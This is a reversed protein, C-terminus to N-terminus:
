RGGIAIPAGAPSGDIRSRGAGLLHAGHRSAPALWGHDALITVARHASRADRISNPGRQYIDPVSVLNTPGGPPDTTRKCWITRLWILLIQAERLEASVRSAGILRMGEAAYHQAIVIGANTAAATVEGADIDCVLTLVAAIRAAHEPLKNALGCIPELEGGQGLRAEIYDAFAIWVRRANGSLPLARLALENRTGSALPLPRELTDLLRAGYRRLAIDSEPSPERWLRTGSAPDPATMLVRSMLGQDILQQDSMWISAVDPQAMLHMAVRRGPLVTIEDARIRDFPKGDWAKSLGAATRLKAEDSMGHGGIFQGGEATFIGISPQGKALLRCLGEFTPEGCILIPKLPAEPAPGLADLAARIADRNGKARKIAERRAADWAESANHHALEDNPYAERLAAERKHMPWLAEDDVSSKREGSAAVSVFFSSLPKARGTPLEVNGQGQVALTAAALVSQGCIALPAQVRDNIARAAPTLVDGLADIPFPDAPPLERTLPRPPEVGAEPAQNVIARVNRASM